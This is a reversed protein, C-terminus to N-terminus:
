WYLWHVILGFAEPDPLPVYLVPAEGTMTPMLKAGKLSGEQSAKGPDPDSPHVAISSRAVPLDLHSPSSSLLLRLLKSQTILYDQHLPFELVPVQDHEPLSGRRGRQVQFASVVNEKGRGIGSEYNKAPQVTGLPTPPWYAHGPQNSHVSFASDPTDTSEAPAAPRKNWAPIVPILM